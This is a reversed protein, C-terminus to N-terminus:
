PPGTGGGPVDTLVADDDPCREPPEDEDDAGLIVWARGCRPCVRRDYEVFPDGALRAHTREYSIESIKRVLLENLRERTRPHGTLFALAEDLTDEDVAPRGGPRLGALLAGFDARLGPEDPLLRPLEEALREVADALRASGASTDDDDDFDDFPM